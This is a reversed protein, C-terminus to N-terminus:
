KTEKRGEGRDRRSKSKGKHLHTKMDFVLSEGVLRRQARRELVEGDRQGGGHRLLEESFRSLNRRENERERIEAREGGKEIKRM